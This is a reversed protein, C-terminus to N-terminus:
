ERIAIKKIIMQIDSFFFYMSKFIQKNNDLCWYIYNVSNYNFNKITMQAGSVM